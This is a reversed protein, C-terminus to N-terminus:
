GLLCHRDLPRWGEAGTDHSLRRDYQEITNRCWALSFALADSRTIGKRRYHIYRSEGPTFIGGMNGPILLHVHKNLDVRDGSTLELYHKDHGPYNIM